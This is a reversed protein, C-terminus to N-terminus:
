DNIQKMMDQREDDNRYLAIRSVGSMTALSKTTHVTSNELRMPPLGVALTGSEPYGKMLNSVKPKAGKTLTMASESDGYRMRPM